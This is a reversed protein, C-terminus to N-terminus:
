SSAGTSGLETTLVMEQTNIKKEKWTLCIIKTLFHGGFLSLSQALISKQTFIPFKHNTSKKTNWM